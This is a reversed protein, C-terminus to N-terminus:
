KGWLVDRFPPYAEYVHPESADLLYLEGDEFVGFIKLSFDPGDLNIRIPVYPVEQGWISLKHHHRGPIYGSLGTANLESLKRTINKLTAEYTEESMGERMRPSITMLAYKDFETSRLYDSAEEIRAIVQNKEEGQYERSGAYRPKLYLYSAGAVGLVLLLGVM